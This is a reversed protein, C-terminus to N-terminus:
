LFYAAALPDIRDDEGIAVNGVVMDDVRRASGFRNAAVKDQESLNHAVFFAEYMGGPHVTMENVKSAFQWPAYANVTTVFELTIERSADVTMGVNTAAVRNTKGGLGTVECFADYLPVLLFGFAFMAVAMLLLRGALAKSSISRKDLPETM